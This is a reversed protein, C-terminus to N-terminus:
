SPILGLQQLLGLMDMEGWHRHDQRRPIAHLGHGHGDRSKNTAPM